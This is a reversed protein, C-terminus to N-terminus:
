LGYRLSYSGQPAPPPGWALPVGPATHPVHRAQAGRSETSSHFVEAGQFGSTKKQPEQLRLVVSEVLSWTPTGESANGWVM